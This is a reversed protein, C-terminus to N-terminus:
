IYLVPLNLLICTCLFAFIMDGDKLALKFTTEKEMAAVKKGQVDGMKSPKSSRSFFVTIIISIPLCLLLEM